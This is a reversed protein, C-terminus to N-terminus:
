LNIQLAVMKYYNQSNFNIKAQKLKAFSRENQSIQLFKDGVFNGCILYM